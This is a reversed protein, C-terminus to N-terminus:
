FAQPRTLKLEVRLENIEEKLSVNEQMIRVYRSHHQEREKIVKKELTTLNRELHERQRAYEQQLDLNPGAIEVMDARQVYKESLGRIKEKLLRPEQIYAVCNHLDTKFQRVLAELNQVKQQEKRMEQDKARLKQLLNMNNLELHTKRKHFHELEAEMEQIQKMVKIEDERPEIQKKLEKIKYNLVFKFKELEQNKKKLDYIRKEKDQITEDREQVERRLGQIDKELSKIVGRLKMQEGKLLETDDKSRRREEIEKQLSSFKKRMVEVEGELRPRPEKEDRLMKEYQTKM